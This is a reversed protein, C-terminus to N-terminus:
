TLRRAALEVELLKVIAVVLTRNRVLLPGLGDAGNEIGIVVKLSALLEAELLLVKPDSCREVIDNTTELLRLSRPLLKRILNGDLEVISVGCQSDNLKM